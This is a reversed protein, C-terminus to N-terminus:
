LVSVSECVYTVKLLSVRAMTQLFFLPYSPLLFPLWHAPQPAASLPRALPLPVLSRLEWVPSKKQTVPMLILSWVILDESSGKFFHFHFDSLTDSEKRDGPIRWSTASSHTSTGKEPPDWWGLSRVWTEWMTPPNKVLQALLSARWSGELHKMFLNVQMMKNSEMHLHYWMINTKTQSLERLIIIELDMWKAAFPMIGNKKILLIEMERTAWITFRRDVIHSVQTRDRPRSSGRSFSIAVWALEMAQFIGHISSGPLSCDMPDCLTPCLQAVESMEKYIHVM